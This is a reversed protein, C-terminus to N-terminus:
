VFSLTISDAEISGPLNLPESNDEFHYKRNQPEIVIDFNKVLEDKTSFVFVKTSNGDNLVKILYEKQNDVFTKTTMKPKLETSGAALRQDYKKGISPVKLPYLCIVNGLTYAPIKSAIIKKVDDNERVKSEIKLNKYFDIVEKYSLDSEIILRKEETISNPFFVLNFIDAEEITINKNTDNM